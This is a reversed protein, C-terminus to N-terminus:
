TILFLFYRMQVIERQALATAMWMPLDVRAGPQLDDGVCSQDLMKGLGRCFEGACLISSLMGESNGVMNGNM